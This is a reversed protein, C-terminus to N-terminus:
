KDSKSKKKKNESSKSSSKSTESGQFPDMGRKRTQSTSSPAPASKSGEEEQETQAEEEAKRDATLNAALAGKIFREAAQKDVEMNPKNGQTVQRLKETYQKIRKLEHMVPHTNPATGNTKLNIFALTNIAYGIMLELQCRKEIDLKALTESLSSPTAFLPAFISELEALTNLLANTANRHNAPLTDSPLSSM